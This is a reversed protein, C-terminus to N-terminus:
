THIIKTYKDSFKLELTTIKSCLLNTTIHQSNVFSILCYFITNFSEPICIKDFIISCITCNKENM